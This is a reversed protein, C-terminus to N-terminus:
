GVGGMFDTKRGTPRGGIMPTCSPAARRVAGLDILKLQEETQIVNDPKFDCYLLDLGHLYGLAPLVELIYALARALPLPRLVGDDDRESRLQKLSSGGVYEMVIYGVQEGTKPNPHEVFNHIKVINPHEVTALFRREAVAAAMADSDGTDLLGKLVVWRDSVNRDRALYVWGLGGHALCGLVEYQGAVLDGASLKPTFSFGTGCKPCFGETRGPRADHGRGVPVGCHGCYRKHEAVEPVAMIATLPDRYPVPPV